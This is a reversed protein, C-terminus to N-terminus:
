DAICSVGTRNRPQSSRSSFHYAVWELIRPSGKHSLQNLIPRCHPFGPNMGQTPFNGQLLSLSSVGTNQGPSNWPSSLGHPELSESLFSHSESESEFNVTSNSITGFSNVLKNFAWGMQIESSTKVMCTIFYIKLCYLPNILIIFVYNCATVFPFFFCLFYFM